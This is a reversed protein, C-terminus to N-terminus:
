PANTEDGFVAGAIPDFLRQFFGAKGRLRRKSRDVAAQAARLQGMLEDYSQYRDVPNVQLM